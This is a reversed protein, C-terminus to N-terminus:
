TKVKCLPSHNVIQHYGLFKLLNRTRIRIGRETIKCGELHQFYHSVEHAFTPMVKMRINSYCNSEGAALVIVPTAKRDVILPLYSGLVYEGINKQIHDEWLPRRKLGIGVQKKVHDHIIDRCYPFIFHGLPFVIVRLLDPISYAENFRNAFEVCPEWITPPCDVPYLKLLNRM